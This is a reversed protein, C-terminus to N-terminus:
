RLPATLVIENVRLNKIKYHKVVGNESIAIYKVKDSPKWLKVKGVSEAAVVGDVGDALRIRGGDKGVSKVTSQFVRRKSEGTSSVVKEVNHSAGKLENIRCLGANLAALEEDDTMDPREANTAYRKEKSIGIGGVAFNSGKNCDDFKKGIERVSTNNGNNDAIVVMDGVRQATLAYGNSDNVIVRDGRKMIAISNGDNDNIFADDGVKVSTVSNGENDGALIMNGIKQLNLAYGNDGNVIIQNGVRIVSTANGKSDNIFISNGVFSVTATDGENSTFSLMDGIKRVTVSNGDDDSIIKMDGIEQVSIATDRNANFFTYLVFDRDNWNVPCKNKVGVAVSARIYPM